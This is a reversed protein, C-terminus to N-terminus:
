GIIGVILLSGFVADRFLLTVRNIAIDQVNHYGPQKRIEALARWRLDPMSLLTKPM